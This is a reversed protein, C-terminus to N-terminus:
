ANEVLLSLREREAETQRRATIDDHVLVVELVKGEDDKLPYAVASVWRQPDARRSRCPRVAM